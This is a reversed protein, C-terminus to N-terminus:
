VFSLLEPHDDPHMVPEDPDDEAAPETPEAPADPPPELSGDLDLLEEYPVDDLLTIGPGEEYVVRLSYRAEPDVGVFKVVFHHEDLESAAGLPIRRPTPERDSSLEVHTAERATYPGGRERRDIVLALDDGPFSEFAVTGTREHRIRFVPVSTGDPLTGHATPDFDAPPKWHVTAVGAESTTTIPEGLTDLLRGQPPQGPGDTPESAVFVQFELPEGEPVTTLASLFYDGDAREQWALRFHHHPATAFATDRVHERYWFCPGVDDRAPCAQPDGATCPARESHPPNETHHVLAIRRQVSPSGEVPNFSACGQMPHDPHLQQEPLGPSHHQVLAEILAQRTPADLRPPEAFTSQEPTSGDRHHFQGALYRQQFKAVAAHTLKGEVGDIPGPNCELIRLITQYEFVDWGEAQAASSLPEPDGVLLARFVEARRDTLTKNLQDSGSPDAHAYIQFLGDTDPAPRPGQDHDFLLLSLIAANPLSRNREFGGYSAAFSAVPRPREIVIRNHVGVQLPLSKPPTLGKRTYTCTDAHIRIEHPTDTM